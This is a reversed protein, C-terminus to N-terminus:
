GALDETINEVATKQGEEERDEPMWSDTSWRHWQEATTRYIFFPVALRM